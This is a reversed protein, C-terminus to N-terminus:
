LEVTDGITGIVFVRMAASLPTPGTAFSRQCGDARADHAFSAHWATGSGSIDSRGVDRFDDNLEIAIGEREIIPGGDAWLVSPRFPLIEFRRGDGVPRAAYCCGNESHGLGTVDTIHNFPMKSIMAVLLDLMAGSLKATEYKM